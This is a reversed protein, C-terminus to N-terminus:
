IELRILKNVNKCKINRHGEVSEVRNKVFYIFFQFYFLPHMKNNEIVTKPRLFRLILKNKANFFFSNGVNKSLFRNTIDEYITSFHILVM